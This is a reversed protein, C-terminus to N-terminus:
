AIMGTKRVLETWNRVPTNVRAVDAPTRNGLAYHPRFFNYNVLFGDLILEASDLSKFGRLVKTREKLTSHWREIINTNIEHTIGKAQIHGSYAGFVREIGDPYVGLSDSIIFRPAKGARKWARRMVTAVDLMGRTKSLHSFSGSFGIFAVKPPLENLVNDALQNVKKIDVLKALDGSKPVYPKTQLASVPLNRCQNADLVIALISAKDLFKLGEAGGLGTIKKLKEISLEILDQITLNKEDLKNIVDHDFILERLQRSKKRYELLLHQPINIKKSIDIVNIEALDSVSKIGNKELKESIGKGVGDIVDAPLEPLLYENSM